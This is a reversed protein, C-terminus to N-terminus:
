APNPTIRNARFACCAIIVLHLFPHHNPAMPRGYSVLCPMARCDVPAASQLHLPPASSSSKDLTDPSPRNVLLSIPTHTHPSSLLLSTTYTSYVDLCLLTANAPRCPSQPHANTFLKKDLVTAHLLRTTTHLLLRPQSVRCPCSLLPLLRLPGLPPSCTNSATQGGRTCSTYRHTPPRTVPLLFHQRSADQQQVRKPGLADVRRRSM